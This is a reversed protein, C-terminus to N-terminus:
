VKFRVKNQKKNNKERIQKYFCGVVHKKAYIKLIEVKRFVAVSVGGV